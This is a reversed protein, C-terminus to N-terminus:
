RTTELDLTIGGYVLPIVIAGNVLELSYVASKFTYLETATAPITITIKKLTDDLVIMSNETTLSEIVTTSTLKERIQMRATYGALSNPQSYELIGGSIYAKYGAANIDNFTLTDTTTGTITKYEDSNVDTMGLVNTIKARWGVPAGHAVATVVLPAAAFISTIPKYVKTDSEWRIEETFTSGQYIKFNLKTPGAM